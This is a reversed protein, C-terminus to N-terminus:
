ASGAQNQYEIIENKVKKEKLALKIASFIDDANDFGNEGHSIFVVNANGYSCREVESVIQGYNIEPVIFAKVKESLETIKRDPFPWITNLKLGGVKIGQDRAQKIAKQSAELTAGYYVIVIEADETATEQFESIEDVNNRIKWLLPHVNYEQCEELMIPYGRDDHTLGTVHFRYGEGIDVMRPIFDKDRKFPLYKNKGGKFYRRPAIKIDAAPPIVIKEKKHAVYEDSM